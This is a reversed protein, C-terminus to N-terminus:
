TTWYQHPPTASKAFSQRTPPITHAKGHTGISVAEIHNCTPRNFSSNTMEHKKKCCHKRISILKRELSMEMSSTLKM